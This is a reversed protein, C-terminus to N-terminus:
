PPTGTDPSQPPPPLHPPRLAAPPLTTHSQPTCRLPCSRTCRHPFDNKDWPLPSSATRPATPHLAPRPTTTGPSCISPAPAAPSLTSMHSLPPLAPQFGHLATPLLM